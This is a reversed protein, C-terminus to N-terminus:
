RILFVAVVEKPSLPAARQFFRKKKPPSKRLCERDPNGAVKIQGADQNGFGRQVANSCSIQLAGEGRGHRADEPQGGQPNKQTLCSISSILRKRTAQYHTRPMRHLLARM